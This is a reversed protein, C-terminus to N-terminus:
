DSSNEFGPDEELLLRLHQLEEHSAWGLNYAMDEEDANREDSTRNSFMEGKPPEKQWVHQHCMSSTSALM